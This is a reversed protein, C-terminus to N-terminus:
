IEASMSLKNFAASAEYFNMAGLRWMAAPGYARSHLNADPFLAEGFMTM